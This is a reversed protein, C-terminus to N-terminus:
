CLIFVAHKFKELCATKTETMAEAHLRRLSNLHLNILRPPEEEEHPM